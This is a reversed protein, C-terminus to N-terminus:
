AQTLSVRFGLGQIGRRRSTGRSADAPCFAALGRGPVASARHREDRGGLVFLANPVKPNKPKTHLVEPKSHPESKLNPKLAGSCVCTETWGCPGQVGTTQLVAQMHKPWYCHRWCSDFDNAVGLSQVFGCRWLTLPNGRLWKKIPGIAAPM